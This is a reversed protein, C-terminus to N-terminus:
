EKCAYFSDIFYFFLFFTGCSIAGSAGEKKVFLILVEKNIYNFMKM